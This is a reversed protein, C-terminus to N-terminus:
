KKNILELNMRGWGEYRESFCFKDIIRYQSDGCSNKMSEELKMYGCGVGDDNREYRRMNKDRVTNNFRDSLDSCQLTDELGWNKCLEGRVILVVPLISELTNVGKGWDSKFKTMM